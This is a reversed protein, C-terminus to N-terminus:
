PSKWASPSFSGNRRRRWRKKKTRPSAGERLREEAGSRAVEDLANRLLDHSVFFMGLLQEGIEVKGDRIDQLLDEAAHTLRQMNSFGMAGSMGKITHAARFAEGVALLDGPTADLKLLANHFSELVDLAEDLFLKLYQEREDM